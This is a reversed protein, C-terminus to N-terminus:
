TRVVNYMNLAERVSQGQSERMGCEVDIDFLWAVPPAAFTVVIENKNWGGRNESLGGKLLAQALVGRSELMVKIEQVLLIKM